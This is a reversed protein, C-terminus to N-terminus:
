RCSQEILHYYIGRLAKYLSSTLKKLLNKAPVVEEGKLEKEFTYAEAFISEEGNQALDLLDGKTSYKWLSLRKQLTSPLQREKAQLPTRKQLESIDIPTKLFSQHRRGRHRISCLDYISQLDALYHTHNELFFEAASTKVANFTADYLIWIVGFGIKEYDSIRAQVEEKSIPSCQVELVIKQSFWVIDAIRSIEPFRVEQQCTDDLSNQIFQQILIHEASKGSLKCLGHPHLHYFHLQKHPGGRRRVKEGCEICFYDCASEAGEVFIRKQNEDFAYVQM